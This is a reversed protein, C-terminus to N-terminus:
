GSPEQSPVGKFDISIGHEAFHKRHNQWVRSEEHELAEVVMRAHGDITMCSLLLMVVTGSFWWPNDFGFYAFAGAGALWLWSLPNVGFQTLANERGWAYPTQGPKPHGARYWAMTYGGPAIMTILFWPIAIVLGAFFWPSIRLALVVLIIILTMATVTSWSRSCLNMFLREFLEGPQQENPM